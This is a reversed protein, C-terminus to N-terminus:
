PKPNLTGLQFNSLWVDVISDVQLNTRPLCTELQRETIQASSTMVPWTFWKTLQGAECGTLKMLSPYKRIYIQRTSEREAMKCTPPIYPYAKSTTPKTSHRRKREALQIVQKQLPQSFHLLRTGHTSLCALIFWVLLLEQHNSIFNEPCGGTNLSLTNNLTM